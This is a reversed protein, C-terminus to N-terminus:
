MVRIFEYLHECEEYMDLYVNRVGYQQDDWTIEITGVFGEGHFTSEQALAGAQCDAEFATLVEEMKEKQLSIITKERVGEWHVNVRQINERVTEWDDNTNLVAKTNSLYNGLDYATQGGAPIEYYRQIEKGNQLRYTVYIAVTEANEEETTEIMQRHLQQVQAIEESDTRYWGGEYWEYNYYHYDCSTYLCASEINQTQPVYTVMGTLDIAVLAMSGSFLLGVTILGVIVKKTFVKVTRELLMWGTFWGILLGVVLYGYRGEGKASIGFVTYFFAGMAFTYALLFVM